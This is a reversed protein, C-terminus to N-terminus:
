IILYHGAVDHDGYRGIERAVHTCDLRAKTSRMQLTPKWVQKNRRSECITRDVTWVM